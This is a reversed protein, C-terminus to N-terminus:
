PEVVGPDSRAEEAAPGGRLDDLGSSWWRSPRPAELAQEAARELAERTAEDSPEPSVQWSM